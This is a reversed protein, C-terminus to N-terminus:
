RSGRPPDSRRTDHSWSTLRRATDTRSVIFLPAPRHSWGRASDRGANRPKPALPSCLRHSGITGVTLWHPFGGDLPTPRFSFCGSCRGPTAVPRPFLIRITASHALRASPTPFLGPSSQPLAVLDSDLPLHRFPRRRCSIFFCSSPYSALGTACPLRDRSLPTGVKRSFSRIRGFRLLM